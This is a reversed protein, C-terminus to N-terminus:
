RWSPLGQLWSWRHIPIPLGLLVPLWILLSLGSVFVVTVAMARLGKRPAQLGYDVLWALALGSFMSAPMYHYLFTCRSVGVWPLYNAAYGISLYFPVWGQEAAWCSSPATRQPQRQTFNLWSRQVALALVWIIGLTSFGWLLPNGTAYVSYVWRQVGPPLPLNLPPLPPGVLPLAETLQDTVQYFYSIPRLLFPWTYWPSCYPHITNGGLGHHYTFIQLHVQRFNYEPNQLLHPIWLLIYTLAAIAPLYIGMSWGSIQATQTVFSPVSHRLVRGRRVAIKSALWLGYLALAFGLGNWKVGITAGISVGTAILGWQRRWGQQNLSFLFFWHSLLGFFLIYVNLLAYRSEVLLLGDLGALGTALLTYSRRDTLQYAIAGWLLPVLSGVFANMWRYGWPNFGKLAIGLAILYKGLPPHADFFSTQTLYHHAFKAFYVEDFVLTNFRELGWFRLALSLSWLILLGGWFWNTALTSSRRVVLNTM